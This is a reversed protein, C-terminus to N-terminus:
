CVPLPMGPNCVSSVEAYNKCTGGNKVALCTDTYTPTSQNLCDYVGKYQWCSATTVLAGPPAVATSLCTLVTNGINDIVSRCAPVSDICVPATKLQCTASFSEVPYLTAVFVMLATGFRSRMMRIAPNASSFEGTTNDSIKFETQEMTDRGKHCTACVTQSDVQQLAM